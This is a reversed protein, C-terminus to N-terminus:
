GPGKIQGGFAEKLSLECRVDALRVFYNKWPSKYLPFSKQFFPNM